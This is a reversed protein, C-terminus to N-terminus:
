RLIVVDVPELRRTQIEIRDGARSWELPGRLASAVEKIPRDTRVSLRSGGEPSPGGFSALMVALGSDHEFLTVESAPHDFEVRQRGLRKLVPAILWARVPGAARGNDRFTLGPQFGLLIAQGKGVANAVAACEGGKYTALSRGTTPTLLFALGGPALDAAPFADTAPFTVRAVSATNGPGSLAQRAGFLEGTEPMPDDYVDAMAAGGAGILLGGAEVWTKLAAVHRRALNLGGVVVCDYRKLDDPNLDEEIIVDVPVQASKLAIFTWMWDHNLRGLGEHVIEHSRNYLIATRRPERRGKAIIEDAPGIACAACLEPPM